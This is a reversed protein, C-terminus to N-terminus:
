LHKFVSGPFQFPLRGDSNVCSFLLSAKGFGKRSVEHRKGMRGTSEKIIRNHGSHFKHAIFQQLKNCWQMPSCIKPTKKNTRENEEVCSEGMGATAPGIPWYYFSPFSLCNIKVNNQEPSKAPQSFSSSKVPDARKEAPKNTKMHVPHKLQISMPSSSFPHKAIWFTKPPSLFSSFVPSSSTSCSVLPRNEM